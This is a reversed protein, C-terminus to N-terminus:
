SAKMSALSHVMAVIESAAVPKAVHAQFGATLARTRDESRALATLAAAPTKAGGPHQRILRILDYGDRDPMGIDSLLVDPQFEAFKEIAQEV